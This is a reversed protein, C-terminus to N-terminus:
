ILVFTSNINDNDLKSEDLINNAYLQEESLGAFLDLNM